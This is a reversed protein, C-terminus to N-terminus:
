SEGQERHRWLQFGLLGLSAIVAVGTALATWPVWDPYGTGPWPGDGVRGVLVAGVAVRGACWGTFQVRHWGALALEPVALDARVRGKRDATVTTPEGGIDYLVVQVKENAQYGRATASVRSGPPTLPTAMSIPVGSTAPQAQLQPKTACNKAAAGSAVKTPQAPTEAAALPASLGIGSLALVAVAMATAGASGFRRGLPM